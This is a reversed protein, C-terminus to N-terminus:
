RFFDRSSAGSDFDIIFIGNSRLDILSAYVRNSAASYDAQLFKKMLTQKVDQLVWANINSEFQLKADQYNGVQNPTDVRPIILMGNGDYGPIESNEATAKSVIGYLLITAICYKLRIM